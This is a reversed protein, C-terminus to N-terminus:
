FNIRYLMMPYFKQQYTTIITKSNQDYSTAYINSHNTINTLDLAWEQTIHKGNLKFAMRSDLRFYPASKTSYADYTDYITYGAKISRDLDIDLQRRGGACVTRLSIDISARKGLPFNYGGLANIVYNNNYATNRWINDGAKYKSDFLSTTLLVYYNDDLYKELTIEIGYNHALGNNILNGIKEQHFSSGANVLSYYSNDKTIPINYLFQYYTEITCKLEKFFLHNYGLVFHNARSFDLNTNTQQYQQKNSDYTKIFYVYLPQIQSHNGYALSLKSRPNPKYSISLRPEVSHTHNPFFYQSHLGAYLTLNSNVRHQLEAFAELLNLNKRKVNLQRIYGPEPPTFVNGIVSDSYNISFSQFNLGCKFTNKANVKLTYKSSASLRTELNNEGYFIINNKVTDIKTAVNQYSASLTSYINSNDTPFFRHTLGIIGIKAGNQTRVNNLINYSSANENKEEDYEIHSNGGISFLSFTGYKKTPVHIKMTLDQYEPIGGGAIKFGIENILALVSYRYDIIYSAGSKKSIPGETGLEFGNFGIQGVFEQKQSNGNRMRLDFVGSLANGYEAPFAGTFFDSNSLLNNNLISVPGGTSGLAGFHNPNPISIGELKWLLGQPSNGRIIIDNRSDNATIVGAFNSAMRSPDGLSGPYKETEKISFTRASVAAMKNLTEGNKYATVVVENVKSIQEELGINIFVEKGSTVEINQMTFPEYGIFTAQLHYVGIPVNKLTFAGNKDSTTGFITGDATIVINAGPLVSKSDKDAVVGRINQQFQASSLLTISMLIFLIIEKKMM